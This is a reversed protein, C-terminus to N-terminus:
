MRYLEPHGDNQPDHHRNIKSPRPPVPLRSDEDEVQLCKSCRLPTANANCRINVSCRSQGKADINSKKDFESMGQNM